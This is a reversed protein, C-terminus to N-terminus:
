LYLYKLTLIRPYPHARCSYDEEEDETEVGGGGDAKFCEIMASQQHERAHGKSRMM